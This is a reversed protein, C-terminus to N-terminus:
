VNCKNGNNKHLTSYDFDGPPATVREMKQILIMAPTLITPNDPDTSIPVLSRANLIAMVEAMLTVLVEHTLQGPNSHLFM